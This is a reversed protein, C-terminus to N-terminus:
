NDYELHDYDPVVHRLHDRDPQELIDMPPLLPSTPGQLASSRAPPGRPPSLLPVMTEREVPRLMGGNVPGYSVEVARRNKDRAELMRRFFLVLASPPEAIMLSVEAGDM